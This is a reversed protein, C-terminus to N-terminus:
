LYQKLEESTGEIADIADRVQQAYTLNNQSM